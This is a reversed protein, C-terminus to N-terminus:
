FSILFLCLFHLHQEKKLIIEWIVKATLKEM